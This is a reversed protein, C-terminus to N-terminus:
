FYVLNAWFTTKSGFVKSKRAATPWSQGLSLSSLPAISIKDIAGGMGTRRWYIEPEVGEKWEYWGASPVEGGVKSSMDVIWINNLPLVKQALVKRIALAKNIACLLPLLLCPCYLVDKHIEPFSWTLFLFQHPSFFIIVCRGFLRKFHLMLSLRCWTELM